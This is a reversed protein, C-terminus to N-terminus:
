GCVYYNCHTIRGLIQQLVKVLVMITVIAQAAGVGGHNINGIVDILDLFSMIIVPFDLYMYLPENPFYFNVTLLNPFPMVTNAFELLPPHHPFIRASPAKAIALKVLLYYRLINLAALLIM